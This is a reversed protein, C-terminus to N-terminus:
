EVVRQEVIGVSRYGVAVKPANGSSAVRPNRLHSKLQNELPRSRKTKMSRDSDDCGFYLCTDAHGKWRSVGRSPPRQIHSGM